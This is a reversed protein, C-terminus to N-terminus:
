LRRGDKRRRGRHDVRGAIDGDLLRLYRLSDLTQDAYLIIRQEVPTLEHREPDGACSALLSLLGVAFLFFKVKCM